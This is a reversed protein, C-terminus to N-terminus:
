NQEFYIAEQYHIIASLQQPLSIKSDCYLKVNTVFNLM